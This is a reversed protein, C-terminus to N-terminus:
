KEKKARNLVARNLSRQARERAQMKLKAMQKRQKKRLAEKRDRERTFEKARKHFTRADKRAYQKTCLAFPDDPEIFKGPGKGRNAARDIAAVAEDLLEKFTKTM